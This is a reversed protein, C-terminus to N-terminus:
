EVKIENKWYYITRLNLLLYCSNMVIVSTVNNILAWTGWILNSVVLIIIAKKRRKAMLFYATLSMCMGLWDIHSLIISM